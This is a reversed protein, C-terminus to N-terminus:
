RNRQNLLQHLQQMSLHAQGIPIVKGNAGIVHTRSGPVLRFGGGSGVSQGLGIQSGPIIKGGAGIVADTGPIVRYGGGTGFTNGGQGGFRAPVSQGTTPTVGQTPDAAAQTTARGTSAAAQGENFLPEGAQLEAIRSNRGAAGRDYNTQLGAQKDAYSQGLQGLAQGLHGSYLLGQNNYKERMNETDLPQKQQLQGLATALDTKAYGGQQILHNIANGTKFHNM